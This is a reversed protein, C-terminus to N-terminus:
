KTKKKTIGFKQARVTVETVASGPRMQLIDEVIDAIDTALLKEDEKESVGFRLDDFFATDTMDPNITLVNVGEKRVEEFLSQGFARLGSKTASYLASFRSSRLAEISTINVINGQNAKLTRLLLNSLLIPAELNIRMMATITETSLEEHPEFRGFGAANVLLTLASKDLAAVTQEIAESDRLDCPLPTFHPHELTTQTVNRSLGYVRFGMELLREAIAKGIGSSVGTVLASQM